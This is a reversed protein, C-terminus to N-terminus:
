VYKRASWSEETIRDDKGGDPWKFSRLTSPHYKRVLSMIMINTSKQINVFYHLIEYCLKKRSERDLNPMSCDENMNLDFHFTLFFLFYLIMQDIM